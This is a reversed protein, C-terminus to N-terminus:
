SIQEDYKEEKLRIHSVCTSLKMEAVEVKSEFDLLMSRASSADHRAEALAAEAEVTNAAKLDATIAAHKSTLEQKHSM